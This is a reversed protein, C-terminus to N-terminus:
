QLFPLEGDLSFGIQLIQLGRSLRLMTPAPQCTLANWNLVVASSLIHDLAAIPAKPPLETKM